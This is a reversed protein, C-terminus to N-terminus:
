GLAFAVLSLAALSLAALALFAGHFAIVTSVIAAVPGLQLTLM